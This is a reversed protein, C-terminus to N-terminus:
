AGDSGEESVIRARSGALTSVERRDQEMAARERAEAAMAALEADIRGVQAALDSLLWVARARYRSTPGAKPALGLILDIATARHRRLRALPATM